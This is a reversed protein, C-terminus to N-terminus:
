GIKRKRCNTKLSISLRFLNRAESLRYTCYDKKNGEITQLMGSLKGDFLMFLERFDTEFVNSSKKLISLSKSFEGSEFLKDAEMNKQESSKIEQVVKDIDTQTNTDFTSKFENFFEDTQSYSVYFSLFISIFFLYKLM